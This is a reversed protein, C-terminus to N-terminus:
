PFEILPYFKPKSHDAEANLTGAEDWHKQWKAEISAPNYQPIDKM